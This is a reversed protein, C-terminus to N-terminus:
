VFAMKLEYSMAGNLNQFFGNFMKSNREPIKKVNEMILTM